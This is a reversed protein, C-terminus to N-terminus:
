QSERYESTPPGVIVVVVDVVVCAVDKLVVDNNVVLPVSAAVFPGDLDGVLAGVVDGFLEGGVARKGEADGIERGGVLEAAAATSATSSAFLSPM